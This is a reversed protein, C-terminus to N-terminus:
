HDYYSKLNLFANEYSDMKEYIFALSDYARIRGEISNIKASILLAQQGNVLALDFEGMIAYCKGLFSMALSLYEQNDGPSSALNM